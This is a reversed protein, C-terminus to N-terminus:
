PATRGIICVIWQVASCKVVSCQVVSCQVASCQVIWEMIGDPRYIIIDTQYVLVGRWEVSWVGSEV